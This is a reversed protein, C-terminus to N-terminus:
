EILCLVAYVGFQSVWHGYARYDGQKADHLAMAARVHRAAAEMMADDRLTRGMSCLGWARSFNMGLHHDNLPRAVPNLPTAPPMTRALWARLDRNPMTTAILDGANGWRSFFEPWRAEDKVPSVGSDDSLYHARVRKAVFAVGEDDGVDVYWHHLQLLAWAANDYERSTPSPPRTEYHTRISQAALRALPGLDDRGTIARHTRALRLFWARGYPLEFGPNEKLDALEARMADQALSELVRDRIADHGLRTSTELLAWHAHVSSHWDICCSFVPHDTDDRQFADFITAELRALIAKADARIEPLAPPEDPGADHAPGADRPAEEPGADRPGGADRRTPAGNSGACATLAAGLLVTYRTPARM